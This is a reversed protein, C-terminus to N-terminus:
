HVYPGQGTGASFLENVGRDTERLITPRCINLSTALYKRASRELSTLFKVNVDNQQYWNEDCPYQISSTMSHQICGIIMGAPKRAPKEEQQTQANTCGM